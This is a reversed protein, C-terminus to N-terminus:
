FIITLIDKLKDNRLEGTYGRKRLEKFIEDTSYISLVSLREEDSLPTGNEKVMKLSFKTKM